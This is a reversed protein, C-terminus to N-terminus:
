APLESLLITIINETRTPEYEVLDRVAKRASEFSLFQMYINGLMAGSLPDTVPTDKMKLFGERAAKWYTYFATINLLVKVRLAQLDNGHANFVPIYNESSEFFPIINGNSPIRGGNTGPKLAHVYTNTLDTITCIRCLTMIECAFLDLIGLRSSGTKYCWAIIAGLSALIASIQLPILTGILSKDQGWTELIIFGVVGIGIIAAITTIVVICRLDEVHRSYVLRDFTEASNKNYGYYQRILKIWTFLRFAVFCLVVILLGGVLPLSQTFTAVTALAAMVVFMAIM